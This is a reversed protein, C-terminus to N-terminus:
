APIKRQTAIPRHAHVPSEGPFSPHSLFPMARKLQPTNPGQMVREPYEPERYVNCRLKRHMPNNSMKTRLCADQRANFAVGTMGMDKSSLLFLSTDTQASDNLEDEFEKDLDEPVPETGLREPAM